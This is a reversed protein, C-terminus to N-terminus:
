MSVFIWKSRLDLSFRKSHAFSYKLIEALLGLIEPLLSLRIKKKEIKWKKRDTFGIKNLTSTNIIFDKLIKM